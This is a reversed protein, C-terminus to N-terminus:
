SWGYSWQKSTSSITSATASVSVAVASVTSAGSIGSVSPFYSKFLLFTNVVYFVWSFGM